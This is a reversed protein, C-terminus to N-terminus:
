DEKQESAPQYPFHRTNLPQHETNSGQYDDVSTTTVLAPPLEHLGLQEMRQNIEDQLGDIDITVRDRFKPRHAKLYFIADLTSGNIAKRFVSTEVQDNCDEKCDELAEAFQSDAEIWRYVTKRNVPTLKAAHYISGQERYLTIFARKREVTANDGLFNYDLIDIFEQPDVVQAEQASM